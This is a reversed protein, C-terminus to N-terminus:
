NGSFGPKAAAMAIGVFELRDNRPLIGKQTYHTRRRFEFTNMKKTEISFSHCRFSPTASTTSGNM